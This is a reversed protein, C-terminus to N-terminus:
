RMFDTANAHWCLKKEMIETPDGKILHIESTKLVTQTLLQVSLVTINLQTM